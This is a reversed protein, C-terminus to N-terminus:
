LLIHICINMRLIRKGFLWKGSTVRILTCYWTNNWGSDGHCGRCIRDQFRGWGPSHAVGGAAQWDEWWSCTSMHRGHVSSIFKNCKVSSLKKVWHVTFGTMLPNFIPTAEIWAILYCIENLGPLLSIIKKKKNSRIYQLNTLPLVCFNWFCCWCWNIVVQVTPQFWNSKMERCAIWKGAVIWREWAPCSNLYILQHLSNAGNPSHKTSYVWSIM